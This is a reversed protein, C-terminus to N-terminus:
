ATNRGQSMDGPYGSGESCVRIMVIDGQWAGRWVEVLRDELDNRILRPHYPHFDLVTVDHGGGFGRSRLQM